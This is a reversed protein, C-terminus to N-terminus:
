FGSVGLPPPLTDLRTHARLAEDMAACCVEQARALAVNFLLGGASTNIEILQLGTASLHFDFGM